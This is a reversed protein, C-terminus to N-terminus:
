AAKTPWCLALHSALTWFSSDWSAQNGIAALACGVEPCLIYHPPLSDAPDHTWGLYAARMRPQQSFCRALAELLATPYSESVGPLM